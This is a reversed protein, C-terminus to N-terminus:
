TSKSKMNLVSKLCFVDTLMLWRDYMFTYSEHKGGHVYSLIGLFTSSGGYKQWYTSCGCNNLCHVLTININRFATVIRM